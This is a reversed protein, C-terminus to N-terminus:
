ATHITCTACAAKANEVAEEANKGNCLAYGIADRTVCDIIPALSDGPQAHIVIEQVGPLARAQDINTIATVTGPTAEIWYLAAGRKHHRDSVPEEGLAIRLSDAMFDMGYALPILDTPIRGGGPRGAIEVIHPGNETVIIEIHFTGHAFGISQLADFACTEIIDCEDTSIRPPMFIGTDYRHPLPSREKGTIGGPIYRGQYVLGDVCYEEGDMFEELLVTKSRSHTMATDFAEHLEDLSELRQVGKSSNADDPKIILPFGMSVACDRAEALTFVERYLPNLIDSFELARRMAAKHRVRTAVLPTFCPLNLRLAVEAVAEVSFEAAPYIGDVKYLKAIDELAKPDLIDACVAHDASPFAEAGANGDMAITTIGLERAKTYIGIQNAGAGAILISKPM